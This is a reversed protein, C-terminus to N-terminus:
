TASEPVFCLATKNWDCRLTETSIEPTLPTVTRHRGQWEVRKLLFIDKRPWIVRALVNVIWETALGEGRITGM